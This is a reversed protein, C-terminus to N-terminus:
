CFHPIGFNYEFNFYKFNGFFHFIVVKEFSQHFSKGKASLKRGQNGISMLEQEISASDTNM